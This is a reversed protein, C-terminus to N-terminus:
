NISLDWISKKVENRFKDKDFENSEFEKLKNMHVKVNKNNINIEIIQLNKMVNMVQGPLTKDSKIIEKWSEESEKNGSINELKNKIINNLSKLKTINQESKNLQNAFKIICESIVEVYKNNSNQDSELKNQASIPESQSTLDSSRSFQKIIDNKPKPDLLNNTKLSACVDPSIAREFSDKSYQRQILSLKEEEQVKSKVTIM